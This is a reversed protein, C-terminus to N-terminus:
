VSFRGSSFSVAVPNQFRALAYKLGASGGDLRDECVVSNPVARVGKFFGEPGDLVLPGEISGLRVALDFAIVAGHELFPRIRLM